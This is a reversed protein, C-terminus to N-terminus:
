RAGCAVACDIVTQGAISLFVSAEDGSACAVLVARGASDEVGVVVDVADVTHHVATGHALELVQIAAQEAFLLEEHEL